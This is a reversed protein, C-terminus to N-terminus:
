SLDQYVSKLQKSVAEPLCKRWKSFSLIRNGRTVMEKMGEILASEDDVEIAIDGEELWEDPGGCKTSIVPIGAAHAELVTVGFSEVRSNNILCHFAPLQRLVSENDMRGLFHISDAHSLSRAMAQLWEEDQGGGIIHLSVDNVEDALEDFLRIVTGINKIEDVLDAVMVFAFGEKKETVYENEEVINPIVHYNGKIRNEIMHDQLFTSVPLIAETRRGLQRFAAKRWLPFSRFVHRIHGSWHESIVVPIKRKKAWNVVLLLDPAFIHM